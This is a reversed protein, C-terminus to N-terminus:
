TDRGLVLVALETRNEVDLKQYIGHLYVKVTGETMTLEEAIDRNRKGKAVLEAIRKERPALKGLPDPPGGSISLEMAREMLDPDISRRGQLVTDLCDILRDEAGDKLVIGNVGLKIAELLRKDELEATLLVVPRNDGKERLQGLAALGDLEPMRMDFICVQPDHTEIADLAQRGNTVAAVLDYRSGRLVAEVGTRIFGHDDAILIPIM